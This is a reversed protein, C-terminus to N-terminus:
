RFNSSRTAVPKLSQTQKPKLVKQNSVYTYVARFLKTERRCYRRLSWTVRVKTGSLSNYPTVDLSVPIL